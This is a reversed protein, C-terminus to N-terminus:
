SIFIIIIYFSPTFFFPQQRNKERYLVYIWIEKGILNNNMRILICKIHKLTLNFYRFKILLRLKFKIGTWGNFFLFLLYLM